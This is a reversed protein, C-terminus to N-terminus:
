PTKNNNIYKKNFIKIKKKLIIHINMAQPSGFYANLRGPISNFLCNIKQTEIHTNPISGPDESLDM